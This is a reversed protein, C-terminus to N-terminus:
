ARHATGSIQLNREKSFCRKRGTSASDSIAGPRKININSEVPHQEGDCVILVHPVKRRKTNDSARIRCDPEDNRPTLARGEGREM